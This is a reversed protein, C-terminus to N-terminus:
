CCPFILFYHVVPLAMTYTFVDILEFYCWTFSMAISDFLFILCVNLKIKKKSFVFNYIKVFHVAIDFPFM